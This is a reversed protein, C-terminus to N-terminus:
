APPPSPASCPTSCSRSATRRPSISRSGPRTNRASSPGAAQAHSTARRPRPWCRRIPPSSPSRSPRVLHILVGDERLGTLREQSTGTMREDAYRLLHLGGLTKNKSAAWQKKLRDLRRWLTTPQDNCLSVGISKQGKERHFFVLNIDDIGPHGGESRSYPLDLLHALWPLGNSFAVDFKVSQPLKKYRAAHGEWEEALQKRLARSVRSPKDSPEEEDGPKDIVDIYNGTPSEGPPAHVGALLGHPHPPPTLIRKHTKHLEELFKRGFPWLSGVPHLLREERCAPDADLAHTSSASCRSGSSSRM